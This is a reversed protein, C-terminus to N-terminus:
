LVPVVCCFDICRMGEGCDANTSCLSRSGCPPTVEWIPDDDTDTDTDTDTDADTDSDTDTDSDADTDTDSDSDSDDDSSGDCQDDPAEFREGYGPGDGSHNPGAKVWAGVIVQGEDAGEGRYSRFHGKQGDFKHHSGDEFELVVNSIDKCSTVDISTCNFVVDIGSAGQRCDLAAENRTGQRGLRDADGVALGGVGQNPSQQCASVTLVTLVRLFLSRTRM